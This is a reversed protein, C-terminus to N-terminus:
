GKLTQKAKWLAERLAYVDQEENEAPSLAAIFRSRKETLEFLVPETITRYVEM